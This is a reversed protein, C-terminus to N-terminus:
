QAQAAVVKANYKADNYSFRWFCEAHFFKLYGKRKLMGPVLSLDNRYFAFIM